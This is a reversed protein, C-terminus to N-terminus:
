CSNRCNSSNSRYSFQQLLIILLLQERTLRNIKSNYRFLFLCTSNFINHKSSSIDLLLYSLM